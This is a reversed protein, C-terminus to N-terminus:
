GGPGRDAPLAEPPFDVVVEGTGVGTVAEVTGVGTVPEADDRVSVLNAV